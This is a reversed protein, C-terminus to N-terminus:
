FSIDHSGKGRHSQFVVIFDCSCWSTEFWWPSFEIEAKDPLICFMSWLEVDNSRQSPILALHGTSERLLPSPSASIMEITYHRWIELFFVVALNPLYQGKIVTSTCSCTIKCFFFTRDKLDREYKVSARAALRCPRRDYVQYVMPLYHKRYKSSLSFWHIASIRKIFRVGLVVNSVPCRSISSSDCRCSTHIDDSM